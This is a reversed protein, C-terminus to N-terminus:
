RRKARNHGINKKKNNNKEQSKKKEIKKEKQVQVSPHPHLPCVQLVETQLCHACMHLLFAVHAHRYMVVVVKGRGRNKQKKM